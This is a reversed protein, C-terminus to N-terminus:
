VTPPNSVNNSSSSSLINSSSSNDQTLRLGPLTPLWKQCGEEGEGEGQVWRRMNCWSENADGGKKQDDIM